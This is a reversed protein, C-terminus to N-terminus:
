IENFSLRNFVTTLQQISNAELFRVSFKIFFDPFGEEKERDFNMSFIDFYPTVVGKSHSLIAKTQFSSLVSKVM